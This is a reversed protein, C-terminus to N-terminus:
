GLRQALGRLAQRQEERAAHAYITMTVEIGSHGAIAQVIHPPVGADLLLTVCTHRLDHLRVGPLGARDRVGYWHRNLNRPEIPTGHATTFVLGSDVCAPGAGLRDAAQRSRHERLADVTM